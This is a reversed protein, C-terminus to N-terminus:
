SHLLSLEIKKSGIELGDNFCFEKAIVSDLLGETESDEDELREKEVVMNTHHFHPMEWMTYLLLVVMSITGLLRFLIETSFTLGLNVIVMSSMMIQHIMVCILAGCLRLMYAMLYLRIIIPLACLVFSFIIEPHATLFFLIVNKHKGLLFGILEIVGVILYIFFIQESLSTNQDRYLKDQHTQSWSDTGIYLFCFLIAMGSSWILGNGEFTGPTGSKMSVQGGGWPVAAIISATTFGLVLIWEKKGCGVRMFWWQLFLVFPLVFSKSTSAVGKHFQEEIQPESAMAVAISSAIAVYSSLPAVPIPSKQRIAYDFLAAICAGVSFVFTLFDSYAPFTDKGNGYLTDVLLKKKLGMAVYTCTVIGATSLTLKTTESNVIVRVIRRTRDIWFNLNKVM